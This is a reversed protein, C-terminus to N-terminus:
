KRDLFIKIKKLFKYMIVHNPFTYIYRGVYMQLKPFTELLHLVSSKRVFRYLMIQIRNQMVTYKNYNSKDFSLDYKPYNRNSTSIYLLSRMGKLYSVSGVTGKMAEDLTLEICELEGDSCMKNILEVGKKTRIIGSNEDNGRSHVDGFSFDACMNTGDPCMFCKEMSYFPVAINLAEYILLQKIEGTKVNTFHVYGPYEGCRWGDFSWEDGVTNMYKRLALLCEKSQAFGCFLGIKYKILSQLKRLKKSALYIGQLECPTGVVAVTYDNKIITSLAANLPVPIYKSGQTQNLTRVDDTLFAEYKEGNKNVCLIKQVLRKELVYKFIASVTGGSAGNKRITIDTAHCTVFQVYPGIRNDWHLANDKLEEFKFGIGPCSSYCLGCHVCGNNDFKPMHSNVNFHICGKMCVGACTGCGSCLNNSLIRNQLEKLYDMTM